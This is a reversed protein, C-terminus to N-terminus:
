DQKPGWRGFPDEVTAGRLKLARNSVGGSDWRSSEGKRGKARAWDEAARAGQQDNRWERTVLAQVNTMGIM